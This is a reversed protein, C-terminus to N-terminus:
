APYAYFEPEVVCVNFVEISGGQSRVEVRFPRSGDCLGRFYARRVFSEAALESDDWGLVIHNWDEDDDHEAFRCAFTQM